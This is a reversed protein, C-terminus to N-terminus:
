APQSGYEGAPAQVWNPTAAFLEDDGLHAGTLLDYPAKRFLMAITEQLRHIIKASRNRLWYFSFFAPIAIFLGSATAVLVEGISGALKSPDGIGTSGLTRFAGMMGFVTGLLGIMPTCVGIVSLYSIFYQMRANEKSIEAFIAEETATKGEGAMVLGARIVNTIPSPNGKCFKAAGVYDGARFLSKLATVHEEPITKKFNTVRALGDVILYVTAVSCIIIVGMVPGGDKISKMVTPPEGKEAAQTVETGGAPAPAPAQAFAPAISGAAIFLAFLLAFVQKM